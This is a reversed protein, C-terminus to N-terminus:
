KDIIKAFDSFKFGFAVCGYRIDKDTKKSDYYERKNSDDRIYWINHKKDIIKVYKSEWNYSNPIDVIYMLGYYSLLRKLLEKCDIEDLNM